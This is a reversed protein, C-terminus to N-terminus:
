AATLEYLNLWLYRTTFTYFLDKFLCEPSKDFANAENRGCGQRVDLQPHGKLVGRHCKLVNLKM